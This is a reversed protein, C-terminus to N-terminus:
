FRTQQFINARQSCFYHFTTTTEGEYVQKYVWKYNDADEIHEILFDAIQKLSMELLGVDTICGFCLALINEKDVSDRYKNLAYCIYEVLSDIDIHEYVTDQDQDEILLQEEDQNEISFQEQDQNEISLKKRKRTRQQASKNSERCLNCTKNLRSEKKANYTIFEVQTKDKSCGTCFFDRREDIEMEM